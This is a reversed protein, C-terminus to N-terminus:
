SGNLGSKVISFKRSIEAIAARKKDPSLKKCRVLRALSVLRIYEIHKISKSLQDDSISRKIILRDQIFNVHFESAVRLWLDYDECVRMNEDFFGCKKFVSKHLVASSPSIRCIDLINQFIQGGYRKSYKENPNVFTQNRYWFEDSHSAMWGKSFIEDQRELKNPLWIDDSDLFCIYDGKAARIGTNRAASVGLNKDHRIYNIRSMYPKLCSSVSLDSGDDVVIIEYDKITQLFVSEVATRLTDTRNYVPIIVSYKM